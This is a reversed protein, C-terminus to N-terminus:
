YIPSYVSAPHEHPSEGRNIAKHGITAPVSRQATRWRLIHVRNFEASLVRFTVADISSACCVKSGSSFCLRAEDRRSLRLFLLSVSRSAQLKTIAFRSALFRDLQMM